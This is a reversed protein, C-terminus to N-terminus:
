FYYYYFSVYWNLFASVTGSNLYKKKKKKKKMNLVQLFFFVGWKKLLVHSRCRFWVILLSWLAHVHLCTLLVCDASAVTPSASTLLILSVIALHGTVSRDISVGSIQGQQMSRRQTQGWWHLIILLLRFGCTIHKLPFCDAIFVNLNFSFIHFLSSSHIFLWNRLFCVQIFFPAESLLVRKCLFM